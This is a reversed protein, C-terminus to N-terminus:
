QRLVTRLWGLTELLHAWLRYVEVRLRDSKPRMNMFRVVEKLISSAHVPLEARGSETPNTDLGKVRTRSDSHHVDMLTLRMPQLESM